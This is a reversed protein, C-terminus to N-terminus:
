SRKRFADAPGYPALGVTIYSCPTRDQEKYCLRWLRGCMERKVPEYSPDAALNRMEHPDKALDYLEDEDFGNFVYKYRKTM